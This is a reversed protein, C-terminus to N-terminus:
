RSIAIVKWKSVARRPKSASTDRESASYGTVDIFNTM